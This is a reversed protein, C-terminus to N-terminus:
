CYQLDRSINSPFHSGSTHSLSYFSLMSSFGPEQSRLSICLLARNVAVLARHKYDLSGKEWALYGM